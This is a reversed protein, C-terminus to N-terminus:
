EGAQFEYEGVREKRILFCNHYELITGRFKELSKAMQHVM